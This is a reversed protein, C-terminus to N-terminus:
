KRLVLLGRAAVLRDAGSSDLRAELARRAESDGNQARALEMETALLADGGSDLGALLSPNAAGVGARSGNPRSGADLRPGARPDRPGEPEGRKRSFLSRRDEAARWSSCRRGTGSQVPSEPPFRKSSRSSLKTERGPSLMRWRSGSSESAWNSTNSLWRDLFIGCPQRFRSSITFLVTSRSGTTFRRPRGRSVRRWSVRM